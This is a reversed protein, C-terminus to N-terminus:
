KTKSISFNGCAPSSLNLTITTKNAANTYNQNLNFKITSQAGYGSLTLSSSPTITITGTNNAPGTWFPGNLEASTLTGNTKDWSFVVSTVTFSTDLNTIAMSVVPSDKSANITDTTISSQCGAKPTSTPTSTPTDTGTATATAMATATATSTPTFTPTATPTNTPTFTVVVGPTNTPTPTDTPGSTATATATATPAPGATSTPTSTSSPGGGGGGTNTELKMIGMITRSSVSTITRQPLPVLNVMPRYTTTITVTVRDPNIGTNVAVGTDVSGDCQDFKSATTGRDYDIAINADSLNALLAAKKALDRIGACYQYKDYTTGDAYGVASAYRAAERSANTVSAYIFVMRGVELIGILLMLLIPLVIAFEVIAQANEKASKHHKSFSKSPM